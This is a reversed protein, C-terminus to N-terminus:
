FYGLGNLLKNLKQIKPTKIEKNLRHNTENRFVVKEMIGNEINILRIRKGIKTNTYIIMKNHSHNLYNSLTNHSQHWVVLGFLMTLLALKDISFWIPKEM